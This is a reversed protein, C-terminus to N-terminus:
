EPSGTRWDWPRVQVDGYLGLRGFPSDALFARVAELSPAELLLLTGNMTSADESLTPGGNLLIM